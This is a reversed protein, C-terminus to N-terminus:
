NELINMEVWNIFIERIYKRIKIHDNRAEIFDNNMTQNLLVNYELFKFDGSHFHGSRITGYLYKFYDKEFRDKELYKEAFALFRHMDSKSDKLYDMKVEIKLLAEISAILYSSMMTPENACVSLAKNYLKCANSFREFCDKNTAEYARLKRFFKIHSTLMNIKSNYYNIEKNLGGQLFENRSPVFVRNKFIEDLEPIDKSIVVTQENGNDGSFTTTLYSNFVMQGQNDVAVLGNLNDFVFLDLEKDYFGKNMSTTNFTVEDWDIREDMLLIVQESQFEDIGIDVLVALFAFVEKALNYALTRASTVDVAFVEVDFFLIQEHPSSTITDADFNMDRGDFKLPTVKIKNRWDFTFEMDQSEQSFYKAYIRVIYKTPGEMLKMYIQAFLQNSYDEIDYANILEDNVIKIKLSPNESKKLNFQVNVTIEKKHFIDQFSFQYVNPNSHDLSCTAGRKEFYSKMADM